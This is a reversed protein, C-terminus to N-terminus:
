KCCTCEPSPPSFHRGTVLSLTKELNLDSWHDRYKEFNRSGNVLKGSAKKIERLEDAISMEEEIIGNKKELSPLLIEQNKEINRSAM